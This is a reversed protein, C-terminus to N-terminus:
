TTPPDRALKTLPSGREVLHNGQSSAVLFGDDPGGGPPAYTSLGEVNSALHGGAPEGVGVMACFTILPM